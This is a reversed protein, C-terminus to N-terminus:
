ERSESRSSLPWLPVRAGPRSAPSGNRGGFAFNVRRLKRELVQWALVLATTSLAMGGLMFAIVVIDWLPRHNYLPMGCYMM